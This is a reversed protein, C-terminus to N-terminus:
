AFMRQAIVAQSDNVTSGLAVWSLGNYVKLQPATPTTDDVWLDSSSPSAPATSQLPISKEYGPVTVSGTFVNTGSFTYNGSSDFSGAMPIWDNASSSWVKAPKATTGPLTGDADVWILGDVKIAPANAQYSSIGVGLNVDYQVLGYSQFSITATSAYVHVEDNQNIAFRFTEYSNSADIPIDYVIYAFQSTLTAGSPEVWVRITAATTTSKNTAIVSVLYQNDANFLTTDTTASPNAIALRRIGM